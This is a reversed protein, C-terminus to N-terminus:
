ENGGEHLRSLTKHSSHAAPALAMETQEGTIQISAGDSLSEAGSTILRSSVTLGNVVHVMGALGVKGTAIPSKRAVRESQDAVWVFPGNDGQLILQQPVFIRTEEQVSSETPDAEPALFTANVLMEPKFVGPPSDLAVKAELTNKQIDAESSVYLVRGVIPEALAPNEIEVAQGLSVKPIDEFRVDVRVQLLDPRYLTVVTSGDTNDRGMGGTMTSGPYGVLQYVRGDIPARVTMRDLRLKAEAVAVRAQEVQAAAAEVQAASVEKAKMEDALLALQTQLADRREVLASRQLHLSEARGQLEEVLAKAADMRSRAEDVVRGAVAEGAALKGEYDTRSFTLDAEARRTAFPLNKVETEIEALSASAEGLAAQLHVPQEFRTRAAKEAAQAERLAAERLKLTAQSREYALRADDKILEAVPEGAKVAQDEVVLLQEV